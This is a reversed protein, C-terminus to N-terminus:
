NQVIGTVYRKVNWLHPLLTAILLNLETLKSTVNRQCHFGLSQKAALEAHLKQAYIKTCLNKLVCFDTPSLV